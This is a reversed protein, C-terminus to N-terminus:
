CLSSSIYVLLYLSNLQISGEGETLSGQVVSTSSRVTVWLIPLSGVVSLCQSVNAWLETVFLIYREM